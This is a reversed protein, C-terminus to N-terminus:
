NMSIIVHGSGPLRCFAMGVVRGRGEQNTKMHVTKKSFKM